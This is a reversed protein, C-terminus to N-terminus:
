EAPSSPAGPDRAQVEASGRDSGGLIEGTSGTKIRGENVAVHQIGGADESTSEVHDVGPKARDAPDVVQFSPGRLDVCEEVGASGEVQDLEMREGVHEAFSIERHFRGIEVTASRKSHLFGSGVGIRRGLGGFVKGEGPSMRHARDDIPEDFGAQSEIAELFVIVRDKGPELTECRIRAGIYVAKWHPM